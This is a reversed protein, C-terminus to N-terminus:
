ILNENACYRIILSRININKLINLKPSLSVTTGIKTEWGMCEMKLAVEFYIKQKKDDNNFSLTVDGHTFDLYVGKHEMCSTRLLSM